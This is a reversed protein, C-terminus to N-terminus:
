FIGTLDQENANKNKKKDAAEMRAAVKKQLLDARRQQAVANEVEFFDSIPISVLAGVVSPVGVYIGWGLFIPPVPPEGVTWGHADIFRSLMEPFGGLVPFPAIALLAAVGSLFGWLLIDKGARSQTTKSM